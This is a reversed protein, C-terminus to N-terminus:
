NDSALKGGSCDAGKLDLSGNKGGNAPLGKNKWPWKSASIVGSAECSGCVTVAISPGGTDAETLGDKM